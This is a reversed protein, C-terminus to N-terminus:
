LFHYLGPLILFRSTMMLKESLYVTFKYIKDKLGGMDIEERRNMSDVGGFYGEDNEDGFQKKTQKNKLFIFPFCGLHATISVHSFLSYNSLLM